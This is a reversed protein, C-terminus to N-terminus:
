RPNGALPSAVAAAIVPQTELSHEATGLAKLSTGLYSAATGM